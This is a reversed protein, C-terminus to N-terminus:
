SSKPLPAVSIPASKFMDASSISAIRWCACSRPMTIDSSSTFAAAAKLSEKCFKCPLKVPSFFLRIDCNRGPIVVTISPRVSIKLPSLPLPTAFILSPICLMEVLIESIRGSSTEVPLSIREDIRPAIVSFRGSIIGSAADMIVVSAELMTEAIGVRNSVPTEM